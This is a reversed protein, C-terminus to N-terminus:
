KLQYALAYKSIAMRCKDVSGLVALIHQPIFDNCKIEIEVMDEDYVPFTLLSKKFVDTDYRGSRIDEDFTIRVDSVPYTFALRKYEVIVAPKLGFLRADVLFQNLLTGEAEVLHYDGKIIKKALDLDIDQEQKYTAFNDKHKCELKINETDLNYLRIRYKKRTMEGNVKDDYATHRPDDFYLSRVEYSLDKSLSHSDLRCVLALQKKLVAADFPSVMFKLEHRYVTDSM